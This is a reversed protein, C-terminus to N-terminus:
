SMSWFIGGWLAAILVGALGLRGWASLRLLSFGPVRSHAHHVYHDHAHGHHHDNSM